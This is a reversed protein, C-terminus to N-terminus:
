AAASRGREFLDLLDALKERDSEEIWAPRALTIRHTEALVGLLSKSSVGSHHAGYRCAEGLLVELRRREAELFSVRRTLALM